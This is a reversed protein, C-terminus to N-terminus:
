SAPPNPRQAAHNATQACSKGCFRRKTAEYRTVTFPKDCHECNLTVQHKRHRSKGQELWVVRRRDREQPSMDRTVGLRNMGENNIRELHAKARALHEPSSTIESHRRIFQPADLSQSQMLGYERKYERASLGHKAWIHAGLRVYFKGCAHCQVHSDGDYTMQGFTM